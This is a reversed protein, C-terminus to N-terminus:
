GMVLNSYGEEQLVAAVDPKIKDPVEAYTFKGEIIRWALFQIIGNM